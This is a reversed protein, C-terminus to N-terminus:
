FRRGNAMGGRGGRFGGRVPQQQPQPPAQQQGYQKRLYNTVKQKIWTKDHSSYGGIQPSFVLCGMDHVANDIYAAVDDLTYNLTALAPNAAKLATEFMAVINQMCDAVTNYDYYTRTNKGGTQVLLITHNTM